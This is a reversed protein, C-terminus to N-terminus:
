IEKKMRTLINSSLVKSHISLLTIVSLFTERKSLKVLLGKQWGTRPYAIMIGYGTLPITVIPYWSTKWSRLLKRLYELITSEALREM